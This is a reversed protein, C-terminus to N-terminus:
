GCHWAGSPQNCWSCGRGACHRATGPCFGAVKDNRHSPLKCLPQQTPLALLLMETRSAVSQFVFHPELGM